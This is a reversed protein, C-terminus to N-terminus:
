KADVLERFSENLVIVVDAPHVRRWRGDVRVIYGQGTEGADAEAKNRETDPIM